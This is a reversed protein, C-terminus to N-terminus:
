EGSHQVEEQTTSSRRKAGRPIEDPPEDPSEWTAALIEVYCVGLPSGSTCDGGALPPLCPRHLPPSVPFSENKSISVADVAYLFTGEISAYFYKGRSLCTLWVVLWM